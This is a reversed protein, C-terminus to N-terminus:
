RLYPFNEEVLDQPATLDRTKGIEVAAVEEGADIAQQFVTALEFPPNGPLKDRLRAAIPEAAAMLPAATYGSATAPDNVRLVRGDAVSIRTYDPRGPQRRIAVAGAAGGAVFAEAFRAVDGRGYLTDAASILYPPDEAARQVADASGLPEPQRVFRLMYPLGDLLAEVREGLHGTVVTIREVGAAALDHILAVVVPRGDIPLVPKPWRDTLPRLRTGGGAAMVVANV